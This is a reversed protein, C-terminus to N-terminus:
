GVSGELKLSLLRDAELAFEMPLESFVEKCFGSVMLSIASELDIGRQLFYFLQEEEIKSTSAEHEVRSTSNNVQIYPFTNAQARSGIIM